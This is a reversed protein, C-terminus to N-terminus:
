VQTLARAHAQRSCDMDQICDCGHSFVPLEGRISVHCPGLATKIKHKIRRPLFSTLVLALTSPNYSYLLLATHVQDTTNGKPYGNIHHRM